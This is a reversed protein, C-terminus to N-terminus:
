FDVSIRITAIKERSIKNISDDSRKISVIKNELGLLIGDFVKEGDIPTYLKVNVKSNKFKEFDTDRKLEREVGPSTVELLYNEEIPDISDLKKNLYKSVLSCDDLSIGEEKDLILRLYRISGEKVFEVDILDLKNEVCYPLAIDRVIDVVRRKKM